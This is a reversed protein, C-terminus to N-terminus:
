PLDPVPEWDSTKTRCGAKLGLRCVVLDPLFVFRAQHFPFSPYLACLSVDGHQIHKLKLKYYTRKSIVTTGFPKIIM